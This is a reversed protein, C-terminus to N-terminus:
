GKKLQRRRRALWEDESLDDRLSTDTTSTKSVPTIPKPLRPQAATTAAPKAGVLREEIRGLAKAQKHGMPDGPALAAIAEAEDPHTALYYLLEAGVESTKIAYAIAPTGPIDPNSIVDDFDAHKARGSKMQKQWDADIRAQEAKEREEQARKQDAERAKTLKQEAKYDILAELYEDWNAFDESKPAAAPKAAPEAQEKAPRTKLAENRWVELESELRAIKRQWGGLRKKHEPATEDQEQTAQPEVEGGEPTEADTSEEATVTPTPGDQELVEAPNNEVEPM